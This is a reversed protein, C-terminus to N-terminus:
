KKEGNSSILGLVIEDAEDSVSMLEEAYGQEIDGSLIYARKLSNYFELDKSLEFIVSKQYAQLKAVALTFGMTTAAMKLLMEPNRKFVEVM